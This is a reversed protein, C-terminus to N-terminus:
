MIRICPKSEPLVEGIIAAPVGAQILARTLADADPTSILLGGATQPDYLIQRLDEPVDPAYEVLCEAFNRNNTLGGPIHGAHICALAGDLLPVQAAHFAISVHSALALERAHGILGFGTIDTMTSIPPHPASPSSVATSSQEVPRGPAATGVHVSGTEVHVTTLSATGVCVEAAKKNLTIM